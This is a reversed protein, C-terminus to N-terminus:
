PIAKILDVLEDETISKVEEIVEVHNEVITAPQIAYHIEDEIMSVFIFHVKLGIPILGYHETFLQNEDDYMDFSALATPEDDYAIYVACNTNDFDEPVDIFITTKPRPDNYWRDINTWGFKTQFVYYATTLDGGIQLEGVDIGGDDNEVWLLDCDLSDCTVEGEFVNVAHDINGTNETPAVITFGSKLKLQSGNQTANVYFEGGSVLTSIKGDTTKGNTPRKTLIMSARDYVEIFEIDVNGTVADGNENTFASASFQLITGEDAILYGGLSSNLIFHQTRNETSNDFWQRLAAADPKPATPSEPVVDDRDCATLGAFIGATVIIRILSSATKM